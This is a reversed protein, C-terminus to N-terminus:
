EPPSKYDSSPAHMLPATLLIRTRRSLTLKLGGGHGSLLAAIRASPLSIGRNALAKPKTGDAQSAIIGPKGMTVALGLGDASASRRAAILRRRSVEANQIATWRRPERLTATTKSIVM